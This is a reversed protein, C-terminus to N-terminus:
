RPISTFATAFAAMGQHARCREGPNVRRRETGFPHATANGRHTTRSDNQHSSFLLLHRSTLILLLWISTADLRYTRSVISQGVFVQCATFLNSFLVRSESRWVVLDNGRCQAMRIGSLQYRISSIVYPTIINHIVRHVKKKNYVHTRARTKAYTDTFSFTAAVLLVWGMRRTHTHTHTCHTNHACSIIIPRQM